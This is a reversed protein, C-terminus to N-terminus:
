ALWGFAQAAVRLICCGGPGVVDAAPQCAHVQLLLQSSVDSGCAPSVCLAPVVPFQMPQHFVFGM